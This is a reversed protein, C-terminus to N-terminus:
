KNKKLENSNKKSLKIKYFLEREMDRLWLMYADIYRQGKNTIVIRNGRVPDRDGLTEVLNEKRMFVIHSKVKRLDGPNRKISIIYDQYYCEGSVNIFHQIKLLYPIYRNPKLGYYEFPFAKTTSYPLDMLFAYECMNKLDMM